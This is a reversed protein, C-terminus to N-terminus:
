EERLIRVPDLRVARYAPALGALAAVALMIGAVSALTLPDFAQVGFVMTKLVPVLLASGVIGVVVGLVTPLAGEAVIMGVTSASTAGLAMRVAIERSRGRVTQALVAYLGAAALLIAVVAFVGLLQEEVRRTALTAAITEDMTSVDRVAQDPDLAHIARRMPEAAGAPPGGTRAVFVAATWSREAEWQYAVAAQSTSELGQLQVDGVVGVVDWTVGPTFQFQLHQGLPDAGPWFARAAANSVLVAHADRPSVDRGRLLPIRMTQLYGPSFERVAIENQDATSAAPRGVISFPQMSGGALPVDSVFAASRVDPLARLRTLADDFFQSRSAPTPFKAPPLNLTLTAVHSADFGLNVRALAQLSRIMLGAGVLLVLSFAMEVAVLVARGRRGSSTTATRGLGKKLTDQVRARGVSLAPILGTAIATAVSLGLSFALVRPELSVDAARPLLDSLMSRFAFLALGALAVGALGAMMGTFLSEVLVQQILRRRTAGLATRIAIEKRRSLARGLMLNAANASAILLVFGVAAM